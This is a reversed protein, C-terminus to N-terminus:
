VGVFDAATLTGDVGVLTAFQVAATGGTGDADYLLAGTVDNYIIRDSADQAADGIVFAADTVVFKGKVKPLATFILHDLQIVDDAVVFNEITDVNTPGLAANFRFADLGLGGDLLDSGLGGILNDNGDGGNLIDDGEGGNLTNAVENGNITNNLGNGTGNIAGSNAALTLYEVNAGLTYTITTFVEDAGENASETVVDFKNDVWYVDNGTGGAMTDRGAGGDLTDNGAGGTLSDNGALGLLYDDYVTGVLSDNGATGTQLEPLAFINVTTSGVATLATGAGQGGSNGDSFHWDIQVSTPPAESSNAYALSSLVENVRAQTADTNFSIVLVGDSNTVAGVTFGSLVANGGTFVLNGSASFLDEANAGGNRSLTISAGDYNGAGGDLAALDADFIAVSNDLAIAAANETYNVSGGLTDTPPGNFTNDLSGDINYRVMAFDPSGSVSYGAVVIKGDPQVTVSRGEDDTGGGIDTVLVGTGNFSTDLSGDATYRAMAFDYIGGNANFSFGAVLIKGDPQLTLSQGFEDADGGFDVAFKGDIGFSTDLSGDTNYRVVAFDASVGNFTHGAVVIKGDPQLAVSFCLDNTLFGFDTLVIGTGAEGFGTDLTTDANYRLLAFNNDNVGDGDVIADSYGAVLMKGDPQLTVGYAIDNLGGLDGGFIIEQTGNASYRAVAFDYDNGLLRFGAVVIKGDPQVTVSQAVDNTDPYDINSFDTVVMGTAAVGFSTDLNGETDYRALAFDNNDGNDSFGAVVIKGDPQLTLSLGSDQLGSFDTVVKGGTGFDGDLNGNALYRAVAFNGSSGADSYGAVLIKGDPQVVVSLGQDYSATGFDTVVIGGTGQAFSPADNVATVIIAATDSASSFAGTGPTTVVYDGASDGSLSPDWARFTIADALTGILDGFPLLRLMDNPGLLLALTNTGSNLQDAHITLWTAGADLSYQWTGLSTDVAEVAIAELGGDSTISGDVVLAAISIGAPDTAGELVTGLSPSTDTLVPTTM